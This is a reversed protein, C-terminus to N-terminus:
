HHIAEFGKQNKQFSVQYLLFHNTKYQSIIKKPPIIERQRAKLEEPM